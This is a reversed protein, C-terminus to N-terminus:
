RSRAWAKNRLSLMAQFGLADRFAQFDGAAHGMMMQEDEDFHRGAPGSRWLCASEVVSVLTANIVHCSKLTAQCRAEILKVNSTCARITFHVEGDSRVDAGIFVGLVGRVEVEAGVVPPRIM